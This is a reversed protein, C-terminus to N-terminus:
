HWNSIQVDRPSPQGKGTELVDKLSMLFTAWKTSCHHMFPVPERWGLHRFMVVAYEGEQSLEFEVQTGLWEDPGGVVEWLVREHPEAKLVLIDFGGLEGFRFKVVGGPSSDGVTDETWWAALGDITTLAAYADEVSAQAGIRHLIDVM